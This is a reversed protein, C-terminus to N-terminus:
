RFNSKVPTGMTRERSSKPKADPVVVDATARRAIRARLPSTTPAVIFARASNEVINPIAMPKLSSLLFVFSVLIRDEIRPRDKRDITISGAFRITNGVIATTYVIGSSTSKLQM